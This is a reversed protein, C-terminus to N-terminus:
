AAGPVNFYVTRDQGGRHAWKRTDSGSMIMVVLAALAAATLNTVSPTPDLWLQSLQLGAELLFTATFALRAWQFHKLVLVWLLIQIVAYVIGGIVFIRRLLGPDVDVVGHLSWGMSVVFALHVLALVGAAILSAPPLHHDGVRSLLSRHEPQYDPAEEDVVDECNVVPLNGDTRIRDGGGNRHHYATSFDEIVSVDVEENSHLLSRVVYDRELDTNEDIKHTVQLTFISLGVSKDYTGAALWHAHHGGPLLWGKPVQWFRVHHRQNANGEVEQQYAFEQPKGFVYLDSVPAQPYSRKFVSSIVIKWSSRLNVPDALSWGARRMATHIDDATGKFALNVPDGLLGDRTKTRGIFYDPVYVLSFVQHLRPLLLFTLVGWLLIAALIATWSLRFSARILFAALIGAQVAALIIFATDLVEYLSWARKSGKVRKDYRYKPYQNPRLYHTSVKVVPKPQDDFTSEQPVALATDDSKEKAQGELSSSSRASWRPSSSSSNM